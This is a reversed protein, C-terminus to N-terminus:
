IIILNLYKNNSNIYKIITVIIYKVRASKYNRKNYKSVLVKVFGLIFLM